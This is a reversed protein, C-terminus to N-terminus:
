NKPSSGDDIDEYRADTIEYDKLDMDRDKPRGRVESRKKPVSRFTNKVIRYGIYVLLGLLLYRLM